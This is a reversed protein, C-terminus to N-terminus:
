DLVGAPGSVQRFFGSGQTTRLEQEEEAMLSVPTETSSTRIRSTPVNTRTLRRTRASQGTALLFVEDCRRHVSRAPEHGRRAPYSWQHAPAYETNGTLVPRGAHLETRRLRCFRIGEKGIRDINPTEYVWSGAATPAERPSGIDDGLHSSMPQQRRFRQQEEAIATMVRWGRAM